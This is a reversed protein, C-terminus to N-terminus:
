PRDFYLDWNISKYWYRKKLGLEDCIVCDTEVIFVLWPSVNGYIHTKMHLM